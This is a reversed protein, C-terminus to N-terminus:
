VFGESFKYNDPYHAEKQAIQKLHKSHHSLIDNKDREDNYYKMTVPNIIRTKLNVLKDMSQSKALVSQSRQYEENNQYQKNSLIDFERVIKYEPQVINVEDIKRVEEEKGKLAQMNVLNFPYGSLNTLTNRKAPEIM